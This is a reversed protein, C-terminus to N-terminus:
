DKIIYSIHQICGSKTGFIITVIILNLHPNVFKNGNNKQALELRITQAHQFIAKFYAHKDLNSNM